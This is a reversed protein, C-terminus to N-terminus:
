AETFEGVALLETDGGMDCIDGEWYGKGMESGQDAEPLQASDISVVVSRINQEPRIGADERAEFIIAVQQKPAERRELNLWAGAVKIAQLQISESDSDLLQDLKVVIKPALYQIAAISVEIPLTESLDYIQQFEPSKKWDCVRQTSVGVAQAADIDRECFLRACLFMRM